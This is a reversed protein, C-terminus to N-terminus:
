TVLMPRRVPTTPRASRVLASSPIPPIRFSSRRVFLTCGCWSTLNTASASSKVVLATYSALQGGRIAPCCQAPENLLRAQRCWFYVVPWWACSAPQVPDVPPYRNCSLRPSRRLYFYLLERSM